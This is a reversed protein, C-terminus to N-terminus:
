VCHHQDEWRVRRAQRFTTHVDCPLRIVQALQAPPARLLCLVTAQPTHVQTSSITLFGSEPVRNLKLHPSPCPGTEPDTFSVWETVNALPSEPSGSPKFNDTEPLVLPLESEPM